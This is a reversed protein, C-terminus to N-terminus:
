PEEDSSEHNGNKTNTDATSLRVKTILIPTSVRGGKIETKSEPIESESVDVNKVLLKDSRRVCNDDSVLEPESSEENESDPESESSWWSKQIGGKISSEPTGSM